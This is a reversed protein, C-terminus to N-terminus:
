PRSPWFRDLYPFLSQWNLRLCGDCPHRGADLVESVACMIPRLFSFPPRSSDLGPFWRRLTSADAPRNPDKVMPASAEWGCCDVFNRRLAQSRAILSYHCYPPSFPPFFTFTKGCQSCLGRRIQIWVHDEDHAQKRRRGHGIISDRANAFSRDEVRRPGILKSTTRRRRFHSLCFRSWPPKEGPQGQWSRPGFVSGEGGSFHWSSFFIAMRRLVSTQWRTPRNIVSFESQEQHQRQLLQLADAPVRRLVCPRDAFPKPM